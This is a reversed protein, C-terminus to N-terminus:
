RMTSAGLASRCKVARKSRSAAQAGGGSDAPAGEVAVGPHAASPAGEVAVGPRAASPAGKVAM